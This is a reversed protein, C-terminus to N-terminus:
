RRGRDRLEKWSLGRLEVGERLSRLRQIAKAVRSRDAEQAPVLRAVPIGRRTILVEEGQAVKNLLSSLHTKADFAGVEIM